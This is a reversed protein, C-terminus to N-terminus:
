NMEAYVFMPDYIVDGGDDFGLHLSLRGSKMAGVQGEVIYYRNGSMHDFIQLGNIIIIRGDSSLSWTGTYHVRPDELSGLGMIVRGEEFKIVEYTTDGWATGAYPQQAFTKGALMEVSVPILDSEFKSDGITWECATAALMMVTIALISFIKKM